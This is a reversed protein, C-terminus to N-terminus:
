INKFFKDTLIKTAFSSGVVIKMFGVFFFFFSFFDLNTKCVYSEVSVKVSSFKDHQVIEKSIVSNIGQGNQVSKYLYM